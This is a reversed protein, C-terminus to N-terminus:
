NNNKEEDQENKNQEDKENAKESKSDQASASGESAEVESGSEVEESDDDKPRRTIEANRREVEEQTPIYRSRGKPLRKKTRQKNKNM